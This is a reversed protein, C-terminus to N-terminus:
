HLMAPKADNLGSNQEESEKERRKDKLLTSKVIQINIIINYRHLSVSKAFLHFDSIGANCSLTSLWM